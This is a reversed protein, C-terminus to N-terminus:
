KEVTRKWLTSAPSILGFPVSITRVTSQANDHADGRGGRVGNRGGMHKGHGVFCRDLGARGGCM